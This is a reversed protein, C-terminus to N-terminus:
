TTSYYVPCFSTNRSNKFNLTNLDREGQIVIYLCRIFDTRSVTLLGITMLPMGEERLADVDLIVTCEAEWAYSTAKEQRWVAGRWDRRTGYRRGARAPPLLYGADDFCPQAGAQAFHNSPRRQESLAGFGAHAAVCASQYAVTWIAQCLQEAM